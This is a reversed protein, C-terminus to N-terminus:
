FPISNDYDFLSPQPDSDLIEDDQISQAFSYTQRLCVFRGGLTSSDIKNDYCDCFFSQSNYNTGNMENYRKLESEEKECYEDFERQSRCPMCEGNVFDVYYERSYKVKCVKCTMFSPKLSIVDNDFYCLLERDLHKKDLTVCVRRTRQTKEFSHIIGEGHPTKVRDGIKLRM